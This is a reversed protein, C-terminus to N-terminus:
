AADQQNNDNALPKYCSRVVADVDSDAVNLVFKRLATGLEVRRSTSADADPQAAADPKVNTLAGATLLKKMEAAKKHAISTKVFFGGIIPFSGVFNLLRAWISETKSFDKLPQTLGLDARKDLLFYEKEELDALVDEFVINPILTNKIVSKEYKFSVIARKLQLCRIKFELLDADFKKNKTAYRAHYLDFVEKKESSKQLENMLSALSNDSISAYRDIGIVMRFLKKVFLVRTPEANLAQRAVPNNMDVWQAHSLSFDDQRVTHSGQSKIETYADNVIKAVAFESLGFYKQYCPQVGIAQAVQAVVPMQVHPYSSEWLKKCLEHMVQAIRSGSKIEVGSRLRFDVSLKEARQYIWLILGEATLLHASLDKDCLKEALAGGSALKKASESVRGFADVVTTAKDVEKAANEIGTSLRGLANATSGIVDGAKVSSISTAAFLLMKLFTKNMNSNEM